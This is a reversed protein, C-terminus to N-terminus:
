CFDLVIMQRQGIADPSDMVVDNDHLLQFLYVRFM